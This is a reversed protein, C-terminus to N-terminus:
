ILIIILVRYQSAYICIISVHILYIHEIFLKKINKRTMKIKQKIDSDNSFTIQDCLSSHTHTHTHGALYAWAGTTILVWMQAGSRVTWDAKKVNVNSPNWSMKFVLM